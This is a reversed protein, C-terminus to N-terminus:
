RWNVHDVPLLDLQMVHFDVLGKGLCFEGERKFFEDWTFVKKARSSSSHLLIWRENLDSSVMRVEPRDVKDNFEELDLFVFNGEDEDFSNDEIFHVIL